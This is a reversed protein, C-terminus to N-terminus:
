NALDVNSLILLAYYKAISEKSFAFRSCDFRAPVAM